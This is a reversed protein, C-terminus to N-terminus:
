LSVLLAQAGGANAAIVVFSAYWLRDKSDLICKRYIAIMVLTATLNDIVASLFFTIICILVLFRWKNSTSILQQVSDFGKFQDILAVMTMAGILFILIEATKALHHLLSQNIIKIKEPHNGVFDPIFGLKSLIHEASAPDLWQAIRDPFTFLLGWSLVMMLIAPILKDIRHWQETAILIYGCIFILVLMLTM